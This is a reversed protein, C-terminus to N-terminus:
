MTSSTGIETNRCSTKPRPWWGSRRLRWNIRSQCDAPLSVCESYTQIESNRNLREGGSGKYEGKTKRERERGCGSGLNGM